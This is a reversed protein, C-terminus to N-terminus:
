DKRNLWNKREKEPFKEISYRLTTRSMKKHNKNLFDVLVKKEKKGVERLMWGVAKHILDHKDKLLIESIKVADKFDNERIFKFCAVISIRKKWLNDSRALEYLIERKKDLLYSGIINPASLDVLDWNNIKEYNKLYFEFIQKQKLQDKKAKIFKLVLIRLACARFEHIESELLEKINELTTGLYKKAVDKIQQSTLGIFIDGEGYEGRGTKFFRQLNKAQESDEANLLEKKLNILM